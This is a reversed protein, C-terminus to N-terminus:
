LFKSGSTDFRSSMDNSNYIAKFADKSSIGKMDKERDFARYENQKRKRKEDRKRGEHEELLSKARFKDNYEEMYKHHAKQRKAEQEETLEEEHVGLYLEKKIKRKKKKRPDKDDGFINMIADEIEGKFEQEKEHEKKLMKMTEDLYDDCDEEEVKHTPDPTYDALAPGVIDNDVGGFDPNKFLPLPGEENEDAENSDGSKYSSHSEADSAGEDDGEGEGEAQQKELEEKADKLLITAFQKLNFDHYKKNKQFELTKEDDKKFRM